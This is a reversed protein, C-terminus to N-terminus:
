KVAELMCEYLTGIFAKAEIGFTDTYLNYTIIVPHADNSSNDVQVPAIVGTVQAQTKMVRALNEALARVKAQHSTESNLNIVVSLVREEFSEFWFPTVCEYGNPGTIAEVFIRPIDSDEHTNDDSALAYVKPAVEVDTFAALGLERVADNIDAEVERILARNSEKLRLALPNSSLLEDVLADQEYLLTRRAALADLSATIGANMEDM